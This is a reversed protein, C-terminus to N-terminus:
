FPTTVFYRLRELVIIAVQAALVLFLPSLDISGLPPTFRRFPRYFPRTLADLLPAIPSHPAIFSLLAQGIAAAILLMVSMRLLEIASLAALVAFAVGSMATFDHGRLSMLLAAMLAQLLWALLLTAVDLGLLGPIFRRLPLVAWNTLGTVLEGVPNRFPARLWQMHFRLLLVYVLLTGLTDILLNIIQSIM